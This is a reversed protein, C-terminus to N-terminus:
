VCWLRPNIPKGDHWIAFYLGPKQYGGSNGVATIVEGKKVFDGVKKYLSSNHGYLSMYGSGHDIIMLLGYGELWQSFVVKGDAIVHVNQGEKAYIIDGRNKLQSNEIRHGYIYDIKGKTPWHMKKKLKYFPFQSLLTKEKKIKNIVKELSKKNELLAKLRQEKTKIQSNIQDLLRRRKKKMHAIQNYKKQKKSKLRRLKQKQLRIEIKNKKLGKLLFYYKNIAHIKAQQIYSYYIFVRSLM